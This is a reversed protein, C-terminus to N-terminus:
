NILKLTLSIGILFFLLFPLLASLLPSLQYVLCLQGLVANLIFFSFGMLGGMFLRFSLTANKLIGLVFPISLLLMTLAAFPKFVRKWFEFEYENGQLGNQKLYRSLELLKPLSMEEPDILGTQLLTPDLSLNWTLKPFSFSNATNEYFQTSVVEHMIWQKKHFIMKKAFYITQLQNNKNFQYLSIDELLQRGRVHRIHFFSNDIHLWVGTATVVTQGGNKVNEKKIEALTSLSPGLIEGLIVFIILFGIAMIFASFMIRLTSFGSAQMVPLERSSSLISLGLISGLLIIMPVFAYLESPLRFLVYRIAQYFHYDGQSINKFEALVMLLFLLSGLILSIILSSFGITKAIYRELIKM